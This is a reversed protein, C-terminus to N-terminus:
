GADDRSNHDAARTLFHCFFTLILKADYYPLLIFTNISMDTPLDMLIDIKSLQVIEYKVEPLCDSRMSSFKLM